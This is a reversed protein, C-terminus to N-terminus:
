KKFVVQFFLIPKLSYTSTCKHLSNRTILVHFIPLSYAFFYQLFWINRFQFHFFRCFLKCYSSFLTFIFFLVKSRYLNKEPYCSIIFPHPDPTVFKLCHSTGHPQLNIQRKFQLKQTFFVENKKRTYCCFKSQCYAVRPM